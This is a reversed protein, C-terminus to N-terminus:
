KKRRPHPYRKVRWGHLSQWISAFDKRNHPLATWIYEMAEGYHLEMLVEVIRGIGGTGPHKELENQTRPRLRTM